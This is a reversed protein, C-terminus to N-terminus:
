KKTKEEKTEVVSKEEKEVFKYSIYTELEAHPEATEYTDGVLFQRNKGEINATFSCLATYIIM